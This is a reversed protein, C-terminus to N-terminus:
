STWQIDIRQIKRRIRETEQKLTPKKESFKPPLVKSDASKETIELAMDNPPKEEDNFFSSRALIMSLLNILEKSTM